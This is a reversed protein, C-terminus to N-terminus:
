IYFVFIIKRAAMKNVKIGSFYIFFFKKTNMSNKYQEQSIRVKFKYDLQPHQTVRALCEDHNSKLTRKSFVLRESTEKM